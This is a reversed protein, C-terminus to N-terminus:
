VEYKEYQIRFYLVHKNANRTDNAVAEYILPTCSIGLVFCHDDLPNPYPYIPHSIKACLQCM